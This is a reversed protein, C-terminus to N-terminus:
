TAMNALGVAEDQVENALVALFEPEIPPEL